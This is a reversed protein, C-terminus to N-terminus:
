SSAPYSMKYQGDSLIRLRLFQRSFDTNEKMSVRVLVITVATPFTLARAMMCAEISYEGWRQAMTTSIPGAQTSALAPGDNRFHQM